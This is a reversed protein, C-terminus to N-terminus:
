FQQYRWRRLTCRLGTESTIHETLVEDVVQHRINLLVIAGLVVAVTPGDTTERTAAILSQKISQGIQVLERIQAGVTRECRGVDGIDVIFRVIGVLLYMQEPQAHARIVEEITIGAVIHLEQIVLSDM